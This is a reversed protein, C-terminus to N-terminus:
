KERDLPPSARTSRLHGMEVEERLTVASQPDDDFSDNSTEQPKLWRYFVMLSYAMLFLFFAVSVILLCYSAPDVGMDILNHISEEQASMFMTGSLVLFFAPVFQFPHQQEPHNQYKDQSLLCLEIMRTIASICLAGGFYAHVTTSFATHQHHSAMALGTFLIVLAPFMSRSTPPLRWTSLVGVLGGAWWLIGMATHQLDKHNWPENWRHETFTNVIGWVLILASDYFEPSRGKSRLWPGALTMTFLLWVGYWVFSSGMIFHALCQGFHDAYCFGTLAIFGLLIQVWALLMTALGLYRHIPKLIPRLYDRRLRRELHLKLYIGCGAQIFFALLVLRSFDVHANEGFHRGQHFHGLFYGVVVFVGGLAQIPVHLKHHVLGLITGIPFLIGYALSMFIIHAWLRGDIDHSIEISTHGSHAQVVPLGLLVVALLGLALPSPSPFAM